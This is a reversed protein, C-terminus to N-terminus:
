VVGDAVIGEAQTRAEIAAPVRTRPEGFRHAGGVGDEVGDVGLDDGDQFPATVQRQFADTM